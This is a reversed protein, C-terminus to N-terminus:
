RSQTLRVMRDISVSVGVPKVPGAGGSCDLVAGGPCITPCFKWVSGLDADTIGRSIEPHIKM